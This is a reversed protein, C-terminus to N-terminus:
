APWSNEQEKVEVINEKVRKMWSEKSNDFKFIELGGGVRGLNKNSSPSFDSPVEHEKRLSFDHKHVETRKWCSKKMSDFRMKFTIRWKWCISKQEKGVPNRWQILRMQLYNKVKLLNVETKKGVPNRWQILRMKFTIRWM